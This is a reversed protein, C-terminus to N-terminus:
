NKKTRTNTAYGAELQEKRQRYSERVEQKRKERDTRTQEERWNLGEQLTQIFSDFRPDIEDSASEQTPEVTGLIPKSLELGDGRASTPPRGVYVGASFVAVLTAVALVSSIVVPLVISAPESPEPETAFGNDSKDYGDPSFNISNLIAAAELQAISRALIQGSHTNYWLQLVSYLAHSEPTGFAGLYYAKRTGDDPNFISIRAQQTKHAALPYRPFTPLKM